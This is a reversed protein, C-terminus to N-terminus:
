SSCEQDESDRDTWNTDTKRVPKQTTTQCLVTWVFEDSNTDNMVAKNLNENVTEHGVREIWEQSDDAIGLRKLVLYTEMGGALTRPKPTIGLCSM